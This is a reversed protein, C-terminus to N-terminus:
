ADNGAHGRLVDNGGAGNLNDNGGYGSLNDDQETPSSARVGDFRLGLVEDM